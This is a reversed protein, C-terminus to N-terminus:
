YKNLNQKSEEHTNCKVVSTFITLFFFFYFIQFQSSSDVLLLCTGPHFTQFTLLPIIALNLHPFSAFPFLNQNSSFLTHLVHLPCIFVVSWTDYSETIVCYTSASYYQFSFPGYQSFPGQFIVTIVTMQM